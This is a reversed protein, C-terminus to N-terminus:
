IKADPHLEKRAADVGAQLVLAAAMTVNAQEKKREAVELAQATQADQKLVVARYKAKEHAEIAAANFAEFAQDLSGDPVVGVDNGLDPYKQNAFAQADTEDTASVSDLVHMTDPETGNVRRWVIRFISPAPRAPPEIVVPAAAPQVAALAAATAQIGAEIQTTFPNM